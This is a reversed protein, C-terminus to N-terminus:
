RGGRNCAAHEPHTPQNRDARHGLDWPQGPLIPQNCRPCILIDGANILAAFRARRTQHTHGYGRATTTARPPAYGHRRIM